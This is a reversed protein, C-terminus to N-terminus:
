SKIILYYFKKGTPSLLQYDEPNGGPQLDVLQKRYLRLINEEFQKNSIGYDRIFSDRLDKLAFNGRIQQLNSKQNIVKIFEKEFNIDRKTIKKSRIPSYEELKLSEEIRVIRKEMNLLNKKIDKLENEIDRKSIAKSKTFKIKKQKLGKLKEQHYKSNIHREAEPNKLNKGCIKCKPM